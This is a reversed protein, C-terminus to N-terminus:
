VSAGTGSYPRLVDELDATARKFTATARDLLALSQEVNARARLRTTNAAVEGTPDAHLDLATPLNAGPPREWQAGRAARLADVRALVATSHATTANLLRHDAAIM